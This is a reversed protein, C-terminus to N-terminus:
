AANRKSADRQQIETVLKELLTSEQKAEEILQDLILLKNDIRAAVERDYDYLRVEMQEVLSQSQKTYQSKKIQKQFQQEELFLQRRKVHSRFVLSGIVCMMGAMFMLYIAIQM